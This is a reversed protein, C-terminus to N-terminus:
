MIDWIQTCPLKVERVSEGLIVVGTLFVVRVTAYGVACVTVTVQVLVPLGSGSTVQVLPASGIEHPSNILESISGVLKGGGLVASLSRQAM